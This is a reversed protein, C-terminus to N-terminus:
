PALADEVRIRAITGKHYDTLWLAEHGFALSDGGPGVWQRVVAHTTPDIATLPTGAM